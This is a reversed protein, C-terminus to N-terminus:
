LNIMNTITKGLVDNLDTSSLINKFKEVSVQNITRTSIKTKLSLNYIKSNLVTFKPFHGSIDLKIKGNQLDQDM